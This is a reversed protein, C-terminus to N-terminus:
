NVTKLAVSKKKDNIKKLRFLHKSFINSGEEIAEKQRRM